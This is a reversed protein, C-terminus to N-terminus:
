QTVDGNVVLMTLSRNEFQLNGPLYKLLGWHQLLKYYELELADLTSYYSKVDFVQYRLLHLAVPKGSPYFFITFFHHKGYIVRFLKKNFRYTSVLNRICVTM